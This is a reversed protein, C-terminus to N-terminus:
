SLNVKYIKAVGGRKTANAIWAGAKRVASQCNEGEVERDWVPRAILQAVGRRRFQGNLESVFLNILKVKNATRERSSEFMRQGTFQNLIENLFCVANIASCYFNYKM